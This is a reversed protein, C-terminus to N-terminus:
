AGGSVDLLVDVHPHLWLVSAPLDTTVAGELFRATAADKGKGTILLLIRRSQLLDGVGLTLGHVPKERRDTMMPHQRTMESLTAVHCGPQLTRGPENLGLHGNKGLGLICLDIPGHRELSQSIRACEASPDVATADFSLYRDAPIGLPALVREQLFYECSAPDSAPMGLWEDLKVVRLNAFLNPRTAAARVWEAYLGAPSHGTPLCFLSDSREALTAFAIEAGRRSLERYDRVRQITAM